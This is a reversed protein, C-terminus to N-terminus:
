EAAEKRLSGILENADIDTLMGYWPSRFFREVERIRMRAGRNGPDRKQRRVAARYDKVAQLVIAAALERYANM